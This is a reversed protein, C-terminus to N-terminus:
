KNHVLWQHYLYNHNFCVYTKCKSCRYITSRHKPKAFTNYCYKCNSHARRGSSQTEKTKELDAGPCVLGSRPKRTEGGPQCTTVLAPDVSHPSRRSPRRHVINRSRSPTSVSEMFFTSCVARIYSAYSHPYKKHPKKRVWCFRNLVYANYMSSDLTWYWLTKWWKKSTRSTTYLGRMFDKLDTGGMMDNYDVGLTPALREVRDAQGSVHRLVKGTKHTHRPNTYTRTHSYACTTNGEEPSHYNSMMKVFGVDSWYAALLGPPTMAWTWQGQPLEPDVLFEPFGYTVRTTGAFNIGVEKTHKLMAVTTFANDGFVTYGCGEFPTLIGRFMTEISTGDRLDVRFNQTYGTKAGNLSYIRIGDYPKYKSQLHKLHTMRGGYKATAEDFSLIREPRFLVCRRRFSSLLLGVKPVGNPRYDTSVAPFKLGTPDASDEWHVQRLFAEFKIRTTLQKLWKEEYLEDTSFMQRTSNRGCRKLGLMHLLM